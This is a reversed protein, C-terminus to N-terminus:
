LDPGLSFYFHPDRADDTPVAIDARVPGLPSKWRVGVGVGVKLAADAPQDFADGADVFAAASWKDVLPHEYELSATLSHKGGVVEDDDNTEGISEFDYGRVSNQGGAFFRLSKPMEDLDNTLTSGASGQVILKGQNSLTRLYKGQVKGQLVSQDSLLSKHAGQVEAALLWGDRPFLPDDSQTKKARAGLLTLRSETAEEGVVQTTEDLYNIFVTQQWGSDNRRNYDVGLKFANSKIDDNDSKRWGISASTYEHEPEWLPVKYTMEASQERVGAKGKAAIKHGKSNVWHIDMGAEVRVGTDTGYGLKGTYSYRKRREATIEVPVKGDKADRFRSNVQVDSYFSSGELIRQQKLIVEVDFTDGERLRIYRKLRKQDLIDQAVTVQGIRYRKGTDFHVQVQAQRTDPNVRIERALYQADFFGLNNATRSLSTKFDEYPQHVLVEGPQYPPKAAIERFAPLDVGEGTVQVDVQTVKVPEGPQVAVNLALCNAQQVPTIHVRAAYYGMAEAGELMKEEASEIFRGVREAPSDCQLNRLSPMFAKLNEALSEGAGQVTVKVPSEAKAAAEKETQQFFAATTPASAGLLCLGWVIRKM